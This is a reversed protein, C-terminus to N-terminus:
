GDTISLSKAGNSLKWDHVMAVFYPPWWIWTEYSWAQVLGELELENARGWVEQSEIGQDGERSHWITNTDGGENGGAGHHVVRSSSGICPRPIGPHCEPELPYCQSWDALILLILSGGFGFTYCESGSATFLMTLSCPPRPATPCEQFMFVGFFMMLCYWNGHM